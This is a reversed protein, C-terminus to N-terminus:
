LNGDVFDYVQVRQVLPRLVEETARLHRPHREYAAAAAPGEFVITLGVDFSADVVARESELATGVRIELVGPLDMFSRTTEIVRRRHEANGPEKLWVLVVHVVPTESAAPGSWAVSAPLLCLLAALLMRSPLGNGPSAQAM